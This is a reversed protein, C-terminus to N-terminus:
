CNAAQRRRVWGLAGLAGGFLWLAAPLPVPAIDGDLVPWAYLASTKPTSDQGGDSFFFTWAYHPQSADATGSWYRYQIDEFPGTNRPASFFGVNGLTSYYLHAMEGTSLDMNYGCDTGSWAWNCGPTGTDTTKPLRWTNVGLHSATNMAAIWENATDWAMRGYPDWAGASIGTVGFSQSNALNADALWTINLVDDYYAQYDTGGPTAPLRGVLAANASATALMLVAATAVSRLMTYGRNTNKDARHYMPM